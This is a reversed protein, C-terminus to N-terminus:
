FVYVYGAYGGGGTDGKMGLDLFHKEVDRGTKESDTKWQSWYSVINGDMQHQNKRTEPDDTVGITWISYQTSGTRAKIAQILNDKNM